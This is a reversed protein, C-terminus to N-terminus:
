EESKQSISALPKGMQDHGLDQIMGYAKRSVKILEEKDLDEKTLKCKKLAFAQAADAFIGRILKDIANDYEKHGRHEAALGKESKGKPKKTLHRPLELIGAVTQGGPLIIMNTKHNINYKAKLLRMRIALACEVPAEPCGAAAEEDIVVNFRGQPILHHANHWYPWLSSSSFNVIDGDKPKAGGTRKLEQQRGAPPGELDWDGKEPLPVHYRVCDCQRQKNFKIFKKWHAPVRGADVWDYIDRRKGDHVKEISAQHAQWRHSCSHKKQYASVHRHLCSGTGTGDTTVRKDHLGREQDTIHSQDDGM